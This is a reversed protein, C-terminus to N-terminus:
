LGAIEALLEEYSEKRLDYGLYSIAKYLVDPLAWSDKAALRRLEELLRKRVMAIEDSGAELDMQSDSTNGCPMTCTRCNPSIAFKEEHILDVMQDSDAELLARRVVLDTNDTKGNNNVAGVLGILVCLNRCSM